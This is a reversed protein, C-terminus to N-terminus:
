GARGRGRLAPRRPADAPGQRFAVGPPRAPLLGVGGLDLRDAHRRDVRAGRRRHRAVAAHQRASRDRGRRRFLRVGSRPRHAQVAGEQCVDEGPASV